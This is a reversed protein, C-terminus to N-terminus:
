VLFTLVNAIGIFIFAFLIFLLTAVAWPDRSEFLKNVLNKLGLPDVGRGDKPM